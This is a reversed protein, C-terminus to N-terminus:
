SGDGRFQDLDFEGGEGADIALRPVAYIGLANIRPVREESDKVGRMGLRGFVLVTSKEAYRRWGDDTAYEFAHGHAGLFGHVRVQVERRPSM